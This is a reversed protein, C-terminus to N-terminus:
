NLVTYAVAMPM